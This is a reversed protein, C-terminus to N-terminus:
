GFVSFRKLGWVDEAWEFDSVVECELCVGCLRVRLLDSVGQGELDSGYFLGLIGM